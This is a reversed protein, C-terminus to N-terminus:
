FCDSCTCAFRNVNGAGDTLAQCRRYAGGVCNQTCDGNSTCAGANDPVCVFYGDASCRQRGCPQCATNTTTGPCCQPYCASGCRVPRPAACGCAGTKPDCTQGASCTVTKPKGACKAATCVDEETCLNGDDCREGDPIEFQLCRGDTCAVTRCDTPDPDRCPPAKEVCRGEECRLVQECRQKSRCDEDNACTDSTVVPADFGAEQVASPATPAGPEVDEGLCGVVVAGGLGLGVVAARV